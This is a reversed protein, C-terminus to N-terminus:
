KEWVCKGKRDWLRSRKLPNGHTPLYSEARLLLDVVLDFSLLICTQALDPTFDHSIYDKQFVNLIDFLSTEHLITESVMCFCIQECTRQKNESSKLYTKLLNRNSEQPASVRVRFIQYLSYLFQGASTPVSSMNEFHLLCRIESEGCIQSGLVCFNNEVRGRHTFVGHSELFYVVRRTPANHHWFLQERQHNAHKWNRQVIHITSINLRSSSTERTWLTRLRLAIM